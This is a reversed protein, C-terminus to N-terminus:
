GRVKAERAAVLGQKFHNKVRGVVFNFSVRQRTVIFCVMAEGIAWTFAYAFAARALLASQVPIARLMLTAIERSAKALSLVVVIDVMHRLQIKEGMLGILEFMLKVENITLVIFDAIMELPLVITRHPAPLFNPLESIFVWATNQIATEQIEIKAHEPRFVPFNHSLTFRINEHNALIQAALGTDNSDFLYVELHHEKVSNVLFPEVICFDANEILKGSIAEGALTPVLILRKM